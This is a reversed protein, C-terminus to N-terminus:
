FIKLCEFRAFGKGPEVVVGGFFIDRCGNDEVFAAFSMMYTERCTFLDTVGNRAIEGFPTQAGRKDFQTVSQFLPRVDENRFLLDEVGVKLADFLIHAVCQFFQSREFSYSFSDAAEARSRGFTESRAPIRNM